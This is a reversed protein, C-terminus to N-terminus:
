QVGSYLQAERQLSTAKSQYCRGCRGTRQHQRSHKTLTTFYKDNKPLLVNDSLEFDDLRPLWCIPCISNLKYALKEALIQLVQQRYPNSQVRMDTQIHVKRDASILKVENFLNPLNDFSKVEILCQSKDIKCNPMMIISQTPFSTKKIFMILDQYCDTILQSFNTILTSETLNFEINRKRDIFYLVELHNSLNELLPHSTFNGVTAIGIASDSNAIGWLCKNRAYRILDTQRIGSRSLTGPMEANSQVLKVKAGVAKYLIPSILKQKSYRSNLVITENQYLKSVEM